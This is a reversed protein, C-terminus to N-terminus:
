VKAYQHIFAKVARTTVIGSDDRYLVTYKDNDPVAIVTYNIGKDVDAFVADPKVEWLVRVNEWLARTADTGLAKWAHGYYRDTKDLEFTYEVHQQVALRISLGFCPWRDIIEETFFAVLKEDTSGCHKEVAAEWLLYRLNM